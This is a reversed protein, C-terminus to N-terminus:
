SIDISVLTGWSPRIDKVLKTPQFNTILDIKAKDVEIGKKSIVHELVIGQKVIFHYKEWNLTLNKERYRVLVLNLHHLCESFLIVSFPSDDMFMELVKEMMDSFYQDHLM